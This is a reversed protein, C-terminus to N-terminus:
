NRLIFKNFFGDRSIFPMLIDNIWKDHGEKNPHTSVENNFFITNNKNKRLYGHLSEKSVYQTTDLLNYLHNCEPHIKYKEIQYLVDDMYFQEYLKIGQQKCFTQLLLMNELTIIVSEVIDSFMFYEKFFDIENYKASNIYWGGSKNYPVYNKLPATKEGIYTLSNGSNNLNGFQLDFIITKDKRWFDMIKEVTKPDDIYWSRRNHGSWMVFVCIEEPKFGQNLAQYIAHLSKKQILQNGQSSLGRHDFEVQSHQQKIVNELLCNWVFKSKPDSFSCGNTIIKRYRM